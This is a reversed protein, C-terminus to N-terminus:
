FCLGNDVYHAYGLSGTCLYPQVLGVLHCNQEAFSGTYTFFQGSGDFIGPSCADANELSGPRNDSFQTLSYRLLSCECGSSTDEVQVPFCSDELSACEFNAELEVLYEGTEVFSPCNSIDNGEVSSHGELVSSYFSKRVIEGYNECPLANIYNLGKTPDIVQGDHVVACGLYALQAGSGWIMRLTYCTEGNPCNNGESTCTLAVCNGDSCVESSGCENGCRGCHNPDTQTDVCEGDCLILGEDCDTSEGGDDEPDGNHGDHDVGSDMTSSDFDVFAADPDDNTGSRRACGPALSLFLLTGLITAIAHVAFRSIERKLKQYEAVM